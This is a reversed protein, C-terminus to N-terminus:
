SVLAAYVIWNDVYSRSARDFKGGCTILRLERKSTYGYVRDSPFKDKGVRQVEYVEFVLGVGNDLQVNVKDGKALEHLRWFIGKQKNGDVHGLLISPGVQGPEPGPEFWGAQQPQKVDPVEHEGSPTLGLPILSSHADIKPIDLQTPLSGVEPASLSTVAITPESIQGPVPPTSGGCGALLVLSVVLILGRM